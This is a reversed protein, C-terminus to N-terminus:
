RKARAKARARPKPKPPPAEEEAQSWQAPSRELLKGLTRSREFYYEIEAAALTQGRRFVPTAYQATPHFAVSTEYGFPYPFGLEVRAAEVYADWRGVATPPVNMLYMKAENDGPAHAGRHLLALTRQNRCAKGRGNPASGFQNMPCESCSDAQKKPSEAFPVLHEHCGTAGCEACAEGMRSVAACEPPSALGEQYPAEFWSNAARYGVVVVGDLTEVEEDDVVFKKGLRTMRIRGLDGGLQLRKSLQRSEEGMAQRLEEPLAAADIGAAAPATKAMTKRAM